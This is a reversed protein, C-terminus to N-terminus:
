RWGRDWKWSKSLSTRLPKKPPEGPGPTNGGKGKGGSGKGGGAQFRIEVGVAGVQNGSNYTFTMTTDPATCYHVTHGLASSSTLDAFLETYAADPAVSPDAATGSGIFAIVLSDATMASGFTLTTSTGTADQDVIKDIQILPAAPSFNSAVEILSLFQVRYSDAFTVVITGTVTSAPICYGVWLGKRTISGTDYACFGDTADVITFAQTGNCVVSTPAVVSVSDNREAAVGVFYLRGATLTVSDSTLTGGDVTQAHTEPATPNPGGWAM